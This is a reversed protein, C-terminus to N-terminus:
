NADQNELITELATQLLEVLEADMFDYDDPIHLIEIAPMEEIHPYLAKIRSAHKREMCGVIDAWLLDSEKIKRRSSEATGASRVIIRSDNRFIKEATPSRRQNRGCVFLVKIPMDKNENGFMGITGDRM